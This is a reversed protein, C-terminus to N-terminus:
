SPTMANRGFFDAIARAVPTPRQILLLHGVGDIKCEEIRPLWSRLRDAVEVWLPETQTGLVSLAPQRIKAAEEAGFKWQTLGPLEVGFITDADKVTQSVIGPIREELVARCADWGLGSAVSMFIALAAEHHGANYADFAPQAKKFFADASAVSLLTPELVCLTHVVKPHDLALQLAVVAGSSHGAIHARPMDLHRLLAAADAVHDAVTVPAPTHTSDVWGRKHYRILRYREALVPESLLPLFGDALVPSILLVPEGSGVVEYELKVGNVEASKM